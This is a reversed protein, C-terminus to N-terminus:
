RGGTAAPGRRAQAQEAARQPQLYIGRVQGDARVDAVAGDKLDVEIRGAILYSIAYGGSPDDEDLQRYVSSAPGGAAVIRELVRQAATDTESPPAEAFTAVITDGRLWDRQAIEPLAQSLSDDTLLREGYAMGVATVQELTRNPALADISDAVLRFDASVARALPASPDRAPPPDALPAPAVPPPGAQMGPPSTEAVVATDAIAASNAPLAASDTAVVVPPPRSSGPVAAILRDVEGDQFLVRIWPADIEIEEGHLTALDGWAVLERFEEEATTEGVISDGAMRLSDSQLRATGTLRLVGGGQMFEAYQGYGKTGARDVEVNGQGIFHTRGRIEMGDADVITTDRQMSDAASAQVLIARPRGSHMIILDEPRTESAQYYDLYPALIVGGEQLDTLVVNGQAIVHRDRAYYQAYDATLTKVSDRYSVSGVLEIMNTSSAHTASDAIVVLGGPCRVVPAAIFAMQYPTDRNIFNTEGRRSEVDCAGEQASGHGPLLAAGMVPLLIWGCRM